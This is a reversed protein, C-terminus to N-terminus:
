LLVATLSEADNVLYHPPLSGLQSVPTELAIRETTANHAAKATIRTADEAM